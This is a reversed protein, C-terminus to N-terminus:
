VSTIRRGNHRIPAKLLSLGFHHGLRGYALDHLHDSRAEAEDHQGCATGPFDISVEVLETFTEASVDGRLDVAHRTFRERDGEGSRALISRLPRDPTATRVSTVYGKVKRGGLPVRVMTGVEVGSVDDPVAYAFGDDVAFSPM